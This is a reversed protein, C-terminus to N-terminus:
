SFRRGACWDRRASGRELVGVAARRPAVERHKWRRHHAPLGKTLLWVPLVLEFFFGPMTLYLGIHFGFVEAITGAVLCPYGILGSIALWRPILRTRFLLLCLFTAGVGLTMEGIQYAMANLQVLISEPAPDRVLNEAAHPQVFANSCATLVKRSSM